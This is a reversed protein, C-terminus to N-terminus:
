VTTSTTTTTTTAVAAKVVIATKINYIQEAQRRAHEAINHKDPQRRLALALQPQTHRHDGPALRALDTWENTQRTELKERWREQRWNTSPSHVVSWQLCFNGPLKDHARICLRPIPLIGPPITTHFPHTHQTSTTIPNPFTAWLMWPLCDTPRHM